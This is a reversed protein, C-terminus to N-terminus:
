YGISKNLITQFFIGNEKKSLIELSPRISQIFSKNGKCYLNLLEDSENQFDFGNKILQCAETDRNSIILTKATEVISRNIITKEKQSYSSSMRFYRISMKYRKQNRLHAAYLYLMDMKQENTLDIQSAINKIEENVNIPKVKLIYIMKYVPSIEPFESLLQAISEMDNIKIKISFIYKLLYINPDKKFSEILLQSSKKDKKVALTLIENVRNRPIEMANSLYLLIKETKKQRTKDMPYRENLIFIDEYMYYQDYLFFLRNLTTQIIKKQVLNRNLTYEYMSISFRPAIKEVRYAEEYFSLSDKGILPFIFFLCFIAYIFKMFFKGFFFQSRHKKM